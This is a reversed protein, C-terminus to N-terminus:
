AAQGALATRAPTLHREFQRISEHWSFKEAYARAHGRDIDLAKLCAARLDNDLAGAGSDGIVDIPGHV